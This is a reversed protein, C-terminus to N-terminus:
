TFTKSFNKVFFARCRLGLVVDDDHTSWRCLACCFYHDFYTSFSRWEDREFRWTLYPHSEADRLTFAARISVDGQGLILDDVSSKTSEREILKPDFTRGASV